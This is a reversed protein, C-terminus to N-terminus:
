LFYQIAATFDKGVISWADKFFKSTYGDPGSSKENPMSFITKQIEEETVEHLMQEKDIESCRFQLLQQLQETSMGTYEEPTHTLFEQFFRAAETKIEETGKKVEGNHDKIEKITNRMKRVQVVRHFVKNNGDGVTLCHLKARQKLFDEEIESLRQWKNYAESEEAITVAIPLMLTQKQKECLNAHAERTWRSIDSLSQKGLNRMAPKLSKLRKSFRHLASTSIFMPPTTKWEEEVILGFQPLKVLVNAFKFPKRKKEEQM